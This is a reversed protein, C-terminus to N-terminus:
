ARAILHAPSRPKITLPLRKATLCVLLASSLTGFIQIKSCTGILTSGSCALAMKSPDNTSTVMIRARPAM